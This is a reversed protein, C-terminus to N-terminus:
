RDNPLACLTRALSHSLLGVHRNECSCYRDARVGFSFTVAEQAFCTREVSEPQTEYRIVVMQTISKYTEDYSCKINQVTRTYQHAHTHTNVEEAGELLEIEYYSCTSHFRRRYRRHM